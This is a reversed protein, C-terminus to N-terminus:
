RETGIVNKYLPNSALATKVDGALVKLSIKGGQSQVGRGGRRAANGAAGGALNVLAQEGLLVCVHMFEQLPVSKMMMEKSLGCYRDYVERTSVRLAADGSLGRLGVKSSMGTPCGGVPNVQSSPRSASPQSVSAASSGTGCTGGCEDKRSSFPNVYKKARSAAYSVSASSVGAEEAEKVAVSAAEAGAVTLSVALLVLQQLSPLAKVTAVSTSSGSSGSLQRVATLMERVGVLCRPGSATSPVSSKPAPAAVAPDNNVLASARIKHDEVLLDFASRCVKFAQRLDGTSGSISRAVLELASDDFVKWPLQDMTSSLICHIQTKSYAPFCVFDPSMGRCKLAPLMRETLDLSNAIAVLAVHVGSIHPLMFLKYVEEPGKDLLRDVEELVIILLRGSRTSQKSDGRGAKGTLQYDRSGMSQLLEVLKPYAEMSGGLAQTSVHVQQNGTKGPRMLQVLEAMLVSYIDKTDALAMCNISISTPELECESRLAGLARSVTFSKGTGPLGSIYISRGVGTIASSKLSTHLQQFQQQRGMPESGMARQGSIALMNRVMAVNDKRLPDFNKSSFPVTIVDCSARPSCHIEHAAPPPSPACAGTNHVGAIRTTDPIPEQHGPEAKDAHGTKLTLSRRRSKSPKSCQLLQHNALVEKEERQRKSRAGNQSPRIYTSDEKVKTEHLLKVRSRTSAM